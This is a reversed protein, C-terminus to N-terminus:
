CICRTNGEKMFVNIYNLEINIRLAFNRSSSEKRGKKKEESPSSSWNIVPKKIDVSLQYDHCKDTYEYRSTAQSMDPSLLILRIFACKIRLKTNTPVESTSLDLNQPPPPPLTPRSSSSPSRNLIALVYQELRDVTRPDVLLKFAQIDVYIDDDVSINGIHVM